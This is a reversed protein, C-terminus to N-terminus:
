EKVDYVTKSLAINKRKSYICMVSLYTKKYHHSSVPWFCILSSWKSALQDKIMQEKIM